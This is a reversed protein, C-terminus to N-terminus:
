RASKLPHLCLRLPVEHNRHKSFHNESVWLCNLPTQLSFYFFSPDILFNASNKSFRQFVNGDYSKGLECGFNWSYEKLIELSREVKKWFFHYPAIFSISFLTNQSGSTQIGIQRPSSLTIFPPCTAIRPFSKFHNRDIIWYESYEGEFKGFKEYKKM